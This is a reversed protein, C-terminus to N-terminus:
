GGTGHLPRNNMITELGTEINVLMFMLAIFEQHQENGLRTATDALMENPRRNSSVIEMVRKHMREMDSLIDDTMAPPIPKGHWFYDDLVEKMKSTHQRNFLKKNASLVVNGNDDREFTFDPVKNM